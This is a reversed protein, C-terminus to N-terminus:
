SGEEERGRCALFRALTLADVGIVPARGDSTDRGEGLAAPSRQLLGCISGAIRGALAEADDDIRASVSRLVEAYVFDRLLAGDLGESLAQWAGPSWGPWDCLLGLTDRLRHLLASSFGREGEETSRLHAALEEILNVADRRNEGGRGAATSRSWSSVWQTKVGGHKVVAVAVSDRGNEGKAVDDLLARAAELVARMPLRVHAFVVAASLTPAVGIRQRSEAFSETYATALDRACGLAGEVPLMALVDDGGAYITVGDSEKVRRQVGGTFRSLAGGVAAGGLRKVLDGLRDGDALLLASYASPPGGVQAYIAALQRELGERHGEDIERRFPCLRPDAIFSRHIYNADLRSFDGAPDGAQEIRRESLIGSDALAKVSEAYTAADAPAAEIVERIWPLAGIHVTSPWHSTDMAWGLAAGAVKTYLRKILALASLHEHDRLDLPGLRARVAQWFDDQHERERRSTARSYGSLEQLDPMVSCKDGPEESAHHSRWHKRRRLADSGETQGVTWVVEWFGSVQRRWIEATGEGKVEAHGVFRGWVAECVTKWAREFRAEVAGVLADIQRPDVKVILHNPVSGIEPPAGRGRGAVWEYLPDSDVCPRILEAGLGAEVAGCIAHASLFSLLYSSGWLDRTRRSQAVFGQVPGISLDIYVDNM